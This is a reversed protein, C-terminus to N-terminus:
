KRMMRFAEGEKEKVARQVEIADFPLTGHIMEPLNFSKLNLDYFEPNKQPLVFPKHAKGQRDIYTFYAKGYLGDDRKSAFCLWRGNSSWSHYTDSKTSNVAQLSDIRGTQLDMMRLDTEPHWIPFTGYDALTFVLWRGDPSVKPHCVSGGDRSASYLTDVEHGITKSQADFSVRVLSYKLNRVDHNMGVTDAVCYIISRGDPTFAPFTELRASDATITSSIITNEQLDAIYVDSKTDYVELRKTSQAHFAPMIINTSFAIFRGDASFDYYVSSSVMSDAKLNLKRLQGHDNLMAGGNKGRIYLMSRNPDGHNAIHCNMCANDQLAHDAIHRTDWNEVCREEIALHNWVEYDPEILRYTLHSDISDSAVHWAFDWQKAVDGDGEEHTYLTVKIDKGKAEALMEKWEKEDFCIKKGDADSAEIMQGDGYEAVCFASTKEGRVMFNLPAINVPITVDAYDPYIPAPSHQLEAKDPRVACGSVVLAIWLQLIYKKM